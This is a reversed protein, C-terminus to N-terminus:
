EHQMEGIWGGLGVLLVLVGALSILLSTVVGFLALMTGLAVVMPWVSPAPLHIQNGDVVIESPPADPAEERDIGSTEAPSAQAQIDQDHAHKANLRQRVSRAIANAVTAAVAVVAVIVTKLRRLWRMM